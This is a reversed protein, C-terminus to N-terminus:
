RSMLSIKKLDLNSKKDNPKNKIIFEIGKAKRSSTEEEIDFYIDSKDNIEKQAKLLVKRKFDNYKKM